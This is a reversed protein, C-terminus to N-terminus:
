QRGEIQRRNRYICNAEAKPVKCKSKERNLTSQRKYPKLTEAWLGSGKFRGQCRCLILVGLIWVSAVRKDTIITILYLM